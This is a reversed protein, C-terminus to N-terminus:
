EKSKKASATLTGTQRYKPTRSVVVNTAVIEMIKIM